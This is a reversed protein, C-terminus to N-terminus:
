SLCVAVTSWISAHVPKSKKTFKGSAISVAASCFLEHSLKLFQYLYGLLTVLSYLLSNGQTYCGGCRDRTVFIYGTFVFPGSVCCRCVNVVERTVFIYGM